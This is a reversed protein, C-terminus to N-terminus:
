PPPSPRSRTPRRPHPPVPPSLECSPPRAQAFSRFQPPPPPPPPPPPSLRKRWGHRPRRPRASTSARPRRPPREACGTATGLRIPRRARPRRRARGVPPRRLRGSASRTGGGLGAGRGRSHGLSGARRVARPGGRPRQRGCTAHRVARGKTQRLRAPWLRRRRQRPPEEEPSRPRVPHPAARAPARRPRGTVSGPALGDPLPGPWCRYAVGTAPRPATDRRCRSWAPWTCCSTTTCAIIEPELATPATEKRGSRGRAPGDRPRARRRGALRPRPWQSTRLHPPESDRQLNLDGLPCCFEAMSSCKGQRPRPRPPMRREPGRRRPSPSFAAPAAAAARAQPRKPAGPAALLTRGLGLSQGSGLPAAAPGDGAPRSGPAPTVSISVHSLGPKM